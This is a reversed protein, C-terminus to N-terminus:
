YREFYSYGEGTERLKKDKKMEDRFYLRLFGITGIAVAVGYPVTELFDKGFKITENIIALELDM